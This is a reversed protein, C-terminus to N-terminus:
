KARLLEALTLALGGAPGGTRESALMMLGALEARTIFIPDPRHYQEVIISEPAHEALRSELTEVKLKLRAIESDREAIKRAAGHMREDAFSEHGRTIAEIRKADDCIRAIRDAIEKGRTTKM